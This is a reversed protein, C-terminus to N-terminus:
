THVLLTKTIGLDHSQYAMGRPLIKHIIHGLFKLESKSFECKNLNLTVGASELQKLVENLRDDREAQSKGFILVDHM